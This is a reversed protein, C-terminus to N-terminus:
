AMDCINYLQIYIPSFSDKIYTAPTFQRLLDTSDVPLTPFTITVSTGFGFESTIMFSGGHSRAAAQAVTLGLGIGPRPAGDNYPDCSFFPHTVSHLLEPKIGSGRDSVTIVTDNSRSSISVTIRNRDSTYQISNSLLNLLAAEILQADALTDCRDNECIVSISPIGVCVMSVASCLNKTIDAINCPKKDPTLMGSLYHLAISSNELLRLMDYSRSKISRVCADHAKESYVGNEIASAAYFITSLDNRISEDYIAGSDLTRKGIVPVEWYDGIIAICGGPAALLTFSVASYLELFLTARAIGDRELAQTLEGHRLGLLEQLSHIDFIPCCAALDNKFGITGSPLEFFAASFSESSLIKDLYDM